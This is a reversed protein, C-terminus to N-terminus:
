RKRKDLATRFLTNMDAAPATGNTAAPTQEPEDRGQRWDLLVQKRFAPDKRLKEAARSEGIKEHHKKLAELAAAAIAKREGGGASTVAGRQDEPLAMILPDIIDRDYVRGLEGVFAGLRQSAAQAQEEQEDMEAFKYPDSQRLQARQAKRQDAQRRAERRDAEAQVLRAIEEESLERKPKAEGQAEQSQETAPKEPAKGSAAQEASKSAAEDADTSRTRGLVRDLWSGKAQPQAQEQTAQQQGSSAGTSPPTTTTDAVPNTQNTPEPM